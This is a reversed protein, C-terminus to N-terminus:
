RHRWFFKLESEKTEEEREGGDVDDEEGEEERMHKESYGQLVRTDVDTYIKSVIDGFTVM